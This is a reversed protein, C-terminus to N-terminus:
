EYTEDDYYSDPSDYEEDETDGDGDDLFGNRKLAAGLEGLSPICTTVAHFKYVTPAVVKAVLVPAAEVPLAPVAAAVPALGLLKAFSRRDMSM